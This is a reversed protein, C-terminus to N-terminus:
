LRRYEVISLAGRLKGDEYQEIRVLAADMGPAIWLRYLRDKRSSHYELRLTDIEGLATSLREPGTLEVDVTEIRGRDDIVRYVDKLADRALDHALVLRLSLLDYIGPEWEVAQERGRFRIHVQGTLPEFRMDSDRDSFADRKVYSLPTLQAGRDLRVLSTETLEGRVFGLLGRPEVSSRYVYHDESQRELRLSARVPIRRVTAHYVAEHLPVALGPQPSAAPATTDDAVAPVAAALLIFAVM